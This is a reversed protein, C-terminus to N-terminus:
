IKLVEYGANQEQHSWPSLFSSRRVYGNSMFKNNEGAFQQFRISFHTRRHYLLRFTKREQVSLPIFTKFNLANVNSAYGTSWIAKPAGSRKRNSIEPKEEESLRM